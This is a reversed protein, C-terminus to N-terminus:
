LRVRVCVRRVCSCRRRHQGHCRFLRRRGGCSGGGCVCRCQLGCHWVRWAQRRTEQLEQQGESTRAPTQQGAPRRRRGWRRRAKPCSSDGRAAHPARQPIQAGPLLFPRATRCPRTPTLHPRAVPMWPPVARHLSIAFARHTIAYSLRTLSAHSM